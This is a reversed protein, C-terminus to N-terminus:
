RCLKVAYYLTVIPLLSCLWLWYFQYICVVVPVLGEYSLLSELKLAAGLWKQVGTNYALSLVFIVTNIITQMVRLWLRRVLFEEATSSGLLLAKFIVMGGNTLLLFKLYENIEFTLKPDGVASYVFMGFLFEGIYSNKADQKYKNM